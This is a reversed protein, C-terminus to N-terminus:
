PIIDNITKIYEDINILTENQNVKNDLLTLEKIIDDIKHYISPIKYVTIDGGHYEISHLKKRIDSIVPIAFSLVDNIDNMKQQDIRNVVAENEKQKYYASIMMYADQLERTNEKKM